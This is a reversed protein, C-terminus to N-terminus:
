LHRAIRVAAAAIKRWTRAAPRDGYADAMEARELLMKPADSGYLDVMERATQELAHRDGEM